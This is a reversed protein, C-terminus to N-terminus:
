NKDLINPNSKDGGGGEYSDSGLETSRLSPDNRYIISILGLM